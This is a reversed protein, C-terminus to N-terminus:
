DWWHRADNSGKRKRKGWPSGPHCNGREWVFVKNRTSINENYRNSINNLEAYISSHLHSCLEVKICKVIGKIRTHLIDVTQARESLLNSRQKSRKLLRLRGSYFLGATQCRWLAFYFLQNPVKSEINDLWHEMSYPELSFHFAKSINWRMQSHIVLFPLRVHRGHELISGLDAGRMDWGVPGRVIRSLSLCYFLLRAIKYKNERSRFNADWDCSYICRFHCRQHM